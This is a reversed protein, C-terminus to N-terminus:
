KDIFIEVRRARHNSASRGEQLVLKGRGEAAIPVYLGQLHLWDAVARARRESLRMNYADEGVEDAYGVAVLAEVSAGYRRILQRLERLADQTLTAKDFDFYIVAIQKSKDTEHGLLVQGPAVGSNLLSQETMDLGLPTNKENTKTYYFLDDRHELSRDSAVYGTENGLPYLHFDNYVTNIPYPLHYLSNPVVNEDTFLVRFLDYGGLGLHGNSSFYLEGAALVPFLEDGETNVTPGLNVPYSWESIGEIWRSVYIDFGGYGGSMNSTFLITKGGNYLFPHAYSADPEQNFLPLFSSFRRKGGTIDSYVLRTRLSLDRGTEVHVREDKAYVIETAIMKDMGTSFSVPGCQLEKPVESMYASLRRHAARDAATIGLTRYRTRHFFLKGPANFLSRSTAYFPRGEFSGVWYEAGHSNLRLPLITYDVHTTDYKMTLANLANKYRQHNSYVSEYAYHLCVAEAQQKNGLFRLADLYDCIDATSTLKEGREEIMAFYAAAAEYDRVMFYLRAIKLTLFNKRAADSERELAQRYLALAGHFNQDLFYRDARKERASEKRPADDARAVDANFLTAALALCALLLKTTKM